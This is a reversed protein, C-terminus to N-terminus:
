KKLCKSDEYQKCGECFFPGSTYEQICYPEGEITIFHKCDNKYKTM